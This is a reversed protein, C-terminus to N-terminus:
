RRSVGGLIGRLLEKGLTRGLTSGLSRLISKTVAEGYGQRRSAGSRPEAPKSERTIKEARRTLLEHASERDLVQDYRGGVPSRSM